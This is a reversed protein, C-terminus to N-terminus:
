VNRKGETENETMEEPCVDTLENDHWSVTKRAWRDEAIKKADEKSDAEVVVSGYRLETVYVKYKKVKEINDIIGVEIKDGTIDTIEFKRGLEGAMDMKIMDVQKPTLMAYRAEKADDGVSIVLRYKEVKM